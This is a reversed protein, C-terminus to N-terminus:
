PFSHRKTNLGSWSPSAATKLDAGIAAASSWIMRKEIRNIASTKRIEKYPGDRKQNM